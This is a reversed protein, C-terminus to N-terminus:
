QNQMRIIRNMSMLQKAQFTITSSPHANLSKTWKLEGQLLIKHLWITLLSVSSWRLTLGVQKNESHSPAPHFNCNSMQALIYPPWINVTKQVGPITRCTATTHRRKVVSTAARPVRSFPLLHQVAGRDGTDQWWLRRMASYDTEVTPVLAYFLGSGDWESFLYHGANQPANDLRLLM